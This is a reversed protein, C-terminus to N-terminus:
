PENKETSVGADEGPTLIMRAINPSFYRRGNHLARIAELLENGIAEKLVYGSAGAQLSDEIYAQTAHISLALVRTQPCSERIQRTVEIGNMLPMSIDIVAVHPQHLRAKTVAEIGDAATAVVEIDSTTELLHRIGKRIYAHDDVLLVTIM